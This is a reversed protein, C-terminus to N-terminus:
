AARRPPQLRSVAIERAKAWTIKKGKLAEADIINQIRKDWGGPRSSVARVPQDQSALTEEALAVAAERRLGFESQLRQVEREMREAFRPSVRIKGNVSKAAPMSEAVRPSFDDRQPIPLDYKDCIDYLGAFANIVYRSVHDDPLVSSPASLRGEGIREFQASM